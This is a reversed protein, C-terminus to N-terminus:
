SSQCYGHGMRPRQHRQWLQLDWWAHGLQPCPLNRFEQRGTPQRSGSTRPKATPRAFADSGRVNSDNDENIKPERSRQHFQDKTFRPSSRRSTPRRGRKTARQRQLLFRSPPAALGGTQNVTSRVSTDSQVNKSKSKGSQVNASRARPAERSPRNAQFRLKPDRFWSGPLCNCRM